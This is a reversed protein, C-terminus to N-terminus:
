IQELLSLRTIGKKNQFAKKTISDNLNLSNDDFNTSMNGGSHSDNSSEDFELQDGTDSETDSVYGEPQMTSDLEHIVTDSLLNPNTTPIDEVPTKRLLSQVESQLFNVVCLAMQDFQKKQYYPILASMENLM